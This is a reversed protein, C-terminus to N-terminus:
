RAQQRFRVIDASALASMNFIGRPTASNVLIHAPRALGSLFPGVLLGGSQKRLLGLAINAADLGPFILLNATGSLNSHSNVSQRYHSDLASISQMEGDIEYDPYMERLIDSAQRMKLASEASSTGFNSHSLLAVKPAIGFRLVQDIATRTSQVIQEVSPDIGIFCDSLFLPGSDFLVTSLTSAGISNSQMGIVDTLDKLHSEFRGVKGCILGDAEGDAVMMAGVLTTRTRMMAQCEELSYGDRGAHKHYREALTSSLVPDEPNIIQVNEGQKIRLGLEAVKGRIVDPRGILIPSLIKEELVQQVAHLITSNEGETYVMREQSRKAMSVIPQMFLGSRVSFRSLKRQYEDMDVIPRRAVGSDMAAKVVAPPIVEILRADFPKPIIYEPGFQLREGAYTEAVEATSEKTALEAIAKVCAIKMEENITTAGCDLAGRFIFPFCLVNNVQNPYDSRGTAIICDPRVKKALAPDIEPDPNAMALILPRPAMKIVMEETLTGPGSLGLFIDADAIVENLTRLDSDQAYTQKYKNMGDARGNYILGRSDCVFVNKVPLGMSVLLNICAISAAGAGSVVLKASSLSKEVIKLGNYIAAATVIATGHQDDHFVPINMRERCQKEIEFCEPAKIDELNIGGFTPELAVVMDVIKDVRAEAVELDFVDIGAFKKFLVAKGEMVPKAALAGINGLGLVATGNSIVGVLNARTTLTDAQSSDQEIATCAFAVGPSYARSLDSQTELRTTATITLKGPMPLRHYDLSEQKLNDDSM